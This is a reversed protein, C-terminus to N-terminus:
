KFENSVVEGLGDEVVVLILVKASPHWAEYPDYEGLGDEVVVLILVRCKKLCFMLVSRRSWRGSCCPNLSLEILEKPIQVGNESVM